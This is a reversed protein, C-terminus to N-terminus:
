VGSATRGLVKGGRRTGILLLAVGAAGLVALDSPEPIPPTLASVTGSVSSTFGRLTSGVILGEPTVDAFAFSLARPIELSTVDLIDSTFSVTGPPESSNLTLSSGGNIGFVFDTFVSSLYNTGGGGSLSTFSFTGNFPQLIQGLLLTAVGSSNLDFNLFASIPAGGGIYQAITVPIATGVVETATDGVDNTATVTPGDIAQAFSSIVSANAAPAMGLGCVVVAASALPAWLRHLNDIM